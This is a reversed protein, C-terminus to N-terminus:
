VGKKRETVNIAAEMTNGYGQMVHNNAVAGYPSSLSVYQGIPSCYPYQYPLGHPPPMMFQGYPLQLQMNNATPAFGLDNDIPQITQALTESLATIKLHTPLSARGRMKIPQMQNENIISVLLSQAQSLLAPEQISCLFYTSQETNSLFGVDPTKGMFRFYLIWRKALTSIDCSTQWNPKPFTKTPNFV